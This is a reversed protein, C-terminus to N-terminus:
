IFDDKDLEGVGYVDNFTRNEELCIKLVEVLEDETMNLGETCFDDDRGRFHKQYEWILRSCESMEVGSYDKKLFEPIRVELKKDM